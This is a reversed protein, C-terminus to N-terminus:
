NEYEAAILVYPFALRTDAPIDRNIKLGALGKALRWTNQNFDTSHRYIGDEVQYGFVGAKGSVYLYFESQVPINNILGPSSIRDRLFNFGDQSTDLFELAYMADQDVPDNNWMGFRLHIGKPDGLSPDLEKIKEPYQSCEQFYNIISPNGFELLIDLNKGLLVKPSSFVTTEMYKLTTYKINPNGKILHIM